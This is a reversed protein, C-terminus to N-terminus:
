TQALAAFIVASANIAWHLIIPAILSSSRLRLWCFVIGACTTVVVVGMISLLQASNGTGLTSSLAQSSNTISISPLVHWLGFLLSSGLVSRRDTMITRFYGLIVGRFFLEEVVVTHIPIFILVTFVIDALTKQYRSDVFVSPSILFVITFLTVVISGAVIGYLLGSRINNKALGLSNASLGRRVFFLTICSLALVIFVWNLLGSTKNILINLLATILLIGAVSIWRSTLSSRNTNDAGM